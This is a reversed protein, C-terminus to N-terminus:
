FYLLLTTYHYVNTIVGDRAQQHLGDRHWLRNENVRRGGILNLSTPSGFLGSSAWPPKHGMDGNAFIHKRHSQRLLYGWGLMFANKFVSVFSTVWGLSTGVLLHQPGGLFLHWRFQIPFPSWVIRTCSPIWASITQLLDMQRPDLLVVRLNYFEHWGSVTTQPLHPNSKKWNDANGLKSLLLILHSTHFMAWEHTRAMVILNDGYFIGEHREGATAVVSRECVWQLYPSSAHPWHSHEVAPQGYCAM